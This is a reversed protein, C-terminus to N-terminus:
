PTIGLFRLLVQIRRLLLRLLSSQRALSRAKTKGKKRDAKGKRERKWACGQRIVGARVIEVSKTLVCVLNLSPRCLHIHVQRTGNTLM